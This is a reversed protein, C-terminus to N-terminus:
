NVPVATSLDLSIGASDRRPKASFWATNKAWVEATIEGERDGEFVQVVRELKWSSKWYKHIPVELKFRSRPRAIDFFTLQGPEHSDYIFVKDGVMGAFDQDENLKYKERAAALGNPTLVLQGNNFGLIAGSYFITGDKAFGHGWYFSFASHDDYKSLHYYKQGGIQAAPAERWNWEIPRESYVTSWTVQARGAEGWMWDSPPVKGIELSVRVSKDAVNKESGFVWLDNRGSGLLKGADAFASQM